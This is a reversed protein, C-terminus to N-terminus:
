EDAADSTYLLCVYQWGVFSAEVSKWERLYAPLLDEGTYFEVDGTGLPLPPPIRVAPEEAREIWDDDNRLQIRRPEASTQTLQSSSVRSESCPRQNDRGTGARAADCSSSPGASIATLRDDLDTIEQLTLVKSRPGRM